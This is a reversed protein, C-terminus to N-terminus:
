DFFGRLKFTRIRNWEEIKVSISEAKPTGWCNVSRDFPSLQMLSAATIKQSQGEPLYRSNMGTGGIGGTKFDEWKPCSFLFSLLSNLANKGTRGTRRDPFSKVKSLLVPIVCCVVIIAEKFFDINVFFTATIKKPQRGGLWPPSEGHRFLIGGPNPILPRAPNSKPGLCLSLFLKFTHTIPAPPM